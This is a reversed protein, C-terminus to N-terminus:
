KVNFRGKRHMYYLLCNALLIGIIDAAVDLLSFERGPILLQHAEDSIPVLLIVAIIIKLFGSKKKEALSLRILITLVFYEFLHALKDLSVTDIKPTRLSPFSSLSIMIIVWIVLSVTYKRDRRM